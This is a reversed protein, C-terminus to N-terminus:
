QNFLDVLSAKVNSKNLMKRQEEKIESLFALKELPSSESNINVLLRRSPRHSMGKGARPSVAFNLDGISEKSPGGQSSRRLQPDVLSNPLQHAHDLSTQSGNHRDARGLRPSSTLTQFQYNLKRPMTQIKRAISGEIKEASLRLDAQKPSLTAGNAKLANTAALIERDIISEYNSGFKKRMKDKILRVDNQAVGYKSRGAGGSAGM